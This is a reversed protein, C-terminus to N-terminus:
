PDLIFHLNTKFGRGELYHAVYLFFRHDLYPSELMKKGGFIAFKPTKKEFLMTQVLALYPKKKTMAV